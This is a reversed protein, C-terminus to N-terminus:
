EFKLLLFQMVAKFSITKDKKKNTTKTTENKGTNTDVSDKVSGEKLDSAYSATSIILILTLTTFLKKM